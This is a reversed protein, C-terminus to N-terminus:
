IELLLLLLTGIVANGKQLLNRKVFLRALKLQTKVTNKSINMEKAIQEYSKGHIEASVYVDKQRQPLKDIVKELHFSMEQQFIDDDIVASDLKYARLFSELLKRDNSIKRLFDFCTNKTLVYLYSDLSESVHIKKRKEWLKVFVMQTIEDANTENIVFKLAFNFIRGKYLDFIRSFAFHNDNQVESLLQETEKTISPM